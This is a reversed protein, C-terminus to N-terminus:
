KRMAEIANLRLLRLFPYISIVFAIIAVVVAQQIFLGPTVATQLVPELGYDSYMKAMEEGFSVPNMNFYLAIPFVALMGAIAGIIVMVLIEIFVMLALQIRKMGIAVLMGFEHEREAMMMLVTGFIGFSIVVYLIFMFVYQEQEESQVMRVMDPVLEKWPMVEYKATDLSARLEEAIQEAEDPDDIFIVAATIQPGTAFFYQAEEMPLFVVQRSMEPSGIKVIGKIPYLGSSTMGRYGQGFLVLTDGAKLKLFEALGAGVLVAKDGPELYEGEIVRESLGTNQEENEPDTGTVMAARTLEGSSALSFGEIRSTYGTIGEHENLLQRLSDTFEFSLDLSPEDWYGKSHIQIYGTFKGVTNEVMLDLVGEKFSALMSSLMVALFVSAMTIFTRQKSRWLNRWALKLLM